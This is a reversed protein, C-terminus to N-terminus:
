DEPTWDLVGPVPPWVIDREIATCDGQPSESDAYFHNAWLGICYIDLGNLSAIIFSLGMLRDRQNAEKKTYAPVWIGSGEERHGYSSFSEDPHFNLNEEEILHRFFIGIDKPTKIHKLLTM